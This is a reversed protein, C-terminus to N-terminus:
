FFIKESKRFFRKVFVFKQPLITECLLHAGGSVGRGAGRAPSYAIGVAAEARKASHKKPSPRERANEKSVYWQQRRRMLICLM